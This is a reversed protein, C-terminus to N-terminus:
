FVRVINGDVDFAFKASWDTGVENMMKYDRNGEYQPPYDHFSEVYNIIRESESFVENAKFTGIFKHDSGYATKLALGTDVHYEGYEYIVHTEDYAKLVEKVENQIAIPLTNLNTM